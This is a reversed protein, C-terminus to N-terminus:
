PQAVYGVLTYQCRNGPYRPERLAEESKLREMAEKAGTESLFITHIESEDSYLPYWAWIIWVNM